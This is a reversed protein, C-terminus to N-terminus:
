APKGFAAAFILFDSFGVSGDSDLDFKSNFSPNGTRSGFAGAFSLFDSFGVTGNGDFDPTTAVPTTTATATGTLSVIQTGRDPDNSLIQLSGTHKGGSTPAFTVQATETAGAAISLTSPSVSFPAQTEFSTIILTQSGTNTMSLTQSQTNGTSVDSWSLSTTALTIVPRATVVKIPTFRGLFPLSQGKTGGYITMEYQGVQANTFAIDNSATTSFQGNTVDIFNDIATGGTTPSFSIAIQTINANSVTGSIRRTQGAVFTTNLPANLVVSDFLDIPLHITENGTSTVVIPSFVGRHSLSGGSAGGFLNLDYTGAQEPTFVFGKRFTGNSVNTQIRIDDGGAKPTFVLLLVEIANDTVQGMFSTGQGAQYQGPLPTSLTIGSFFDTPLNVTGSGASVIAGAFRGVQPLLAGQQGAYVALTYEGAQSPAFIVSQSFRGASVDISFQIESNSSDRPEYTLLIRSISADSVSGSFPISEGATYVASFPTDLTLKQFFDTPLSLAPTFNKPLPIYTARVSGAADTQIQINKPGTGTLRIFTSAAPRITGSVSTTTANIKQEKPLPFSRKKSQPETFYPFSYNLTADTNINNGSLFLRTLFTRYVTDFSQGAINEVNAINVNNTKVLKGPVDQGFSEMLGRVFLYAAGRIGLNLSADGTLAYREPNNMFESVLDTNGGNIHGGVLDEAVHSLGENLWTEEADGKQILVHQNFNILHQFEHALLAEYSALEQTPSIFMMDAVNGDGGQNTSFLSSSAYFGAVGGVRDVLHTYLFIVKGDNDVDSPAGYMNTITSFTSNSFTNLMAEIQATTINKDSATLANDLYAVARTNTAVLTATVTQNATVGGFKGFTFARTSGVQQSQVIKQLPPVWGNQQIRKAFDQEKQRLIHEFHDRPSAQASFISPSLLAPTTGSSVTYNYTRTTDTANTQGSYLILEYDNNTLDLNLTGSGNSLTASIPTGVTQAHVPIAHIFLLIFLTFIRNM